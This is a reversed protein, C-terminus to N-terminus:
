NVYESNIFADTLVVKKGDENVLGKVKGINVIEVFEEEFDDDEPIRFRTGVKHKFVELINM